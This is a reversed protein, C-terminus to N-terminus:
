RRCRRLVFGVSGLGALASILTAPEPTENVSGVRIEAELIASGNTHNVADVSVDYVNGGLTVSHSSSAPFDALAHIDDVSYFAFGWFVQRATAWGRGQFNLTASEGSAADTVKLSLQFMQEAYGLPFPGPATDFAPSLTGVPVTRWGWASGPNAPSLQGIIEDHISVAGLDVFSALSPDGGAAKLDAQYNWPVPGALASLASCLLVCIAALFRGVHGVYPM